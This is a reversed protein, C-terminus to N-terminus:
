FFFFFVPSVHGERKTSVEPFYRAIRPTNKKKFFVVVRAYVRLRLCQILQRTIEVRVHEMCRIFHREIRLRGDKKPPPKTEAGM